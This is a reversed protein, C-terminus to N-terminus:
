TLKIQEYHDSHSTLRADNGSVFIQSIDNQRQVPLTMQETITLKANLGQQRMGFPVFSERLYYWTCSKCDLKNVCYPSRCVSSLHHFQSVSHLRSHNNDTMQFHLKRKKFLMNHSSLCNFLYSLTTTHFYILFKEVATWAFFKKLNRM